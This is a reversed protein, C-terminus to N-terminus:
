RTLLKLMMILEKKEQSTLATEDIVDELEESSLQGSGLAYSLMTYYDDVTFAAEPSGEVLEAYKTSGPYNEIVANLYVNWFAEGFIRVADSKIVSLADLTEEFTKGNALQTEVYGAAMTVAKEYSIEDLEGSDAYASETINDEIKQDYESTDVGLAALYSTDGAELAKLAINWKAALSETESEAAAAAEYSSTDIGLANLGSYDGYLAALKAEALAASQVNEDYSAAQEAAYRADSIADRALKYDYERDTNYQNLGLKAYYEDIEALRANNESKEAVIQAEIDALESVRARENQDQNERYATLQGSKITDSYGSNYLGASSLSNALGEKDSLFASYAERALDDYRQNTEPTLAMLESLAQASYENQAAMAAAAAASIYSQGDYVQGNEPDIYTTTVYAM